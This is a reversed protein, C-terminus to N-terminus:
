LIQSTEKRQPPGAGTGRTGQRGEQGRSPNPAWFRDQYHQMEEVRIFMSARKRLEHMGLPSRMALEDAFPGPRLAMVMYHLILNPTLDKIKMAIVGFRDIFTHLSEGEEQRLNLLSMSTLDHRRSTDFQTTFSTTLTNFSDITYPQLSMFWELASGRLAVSFSKCLVADDTSYLAVQNTYISIFEYPDTTGDYTVTPAKWKHPLSTEVIEDVFLHRRNRRSAFPSYNGGTTHGPPKYENEEKTAPPPDARSPVIGPGGVAKDAEIKRKLRSNEERLAEMEDVNRKKYEAFEQQMRAQAELIRSIDSSPGAGAVEMM